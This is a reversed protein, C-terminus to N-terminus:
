DDLPRLDRYIFASIRHPANELKCHVYNNQIKYVVAIEKKWKCPCEFQDKHMAYNAMSSASSKEIFVRDGIAFDHQQTFPNM